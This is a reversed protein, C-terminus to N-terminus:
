QASCVLNKRRFAQIRQQPLLLAISFAKLYMKLLSTVVPFWVFFPKNSLVWFDGNKQKGVPSTVSM